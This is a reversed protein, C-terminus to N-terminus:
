LLDLERARAVAQTRRQVGLKGHINQVHKKVTRISIVLEDAIERNSLGEAVLQLVELERSSLPEVLPHPHQYAKESREEIAALLQKVYDVQIGRQAAHRLLRAMPAGENAFIRVYGEPRALSLAEELALLAHDSQNQHELALAELALMEILRGHRGGARAGDALPALLQLTAGADGQALRVRAVALLELERSLPSDDAGPTSEREAAWQEGAKLHGQALSLRVRYTDLITHLQAFLMRERGIQIADDLTAAASALDGQAHRIRALALYALALDSPNEWGQMQELSSKVLRQATELENWECLLDALGTDVGAVTGFRSGGGQDVAHLAQQYLKHAEQLQGQVKRLSALECLAVSQTWVNASERGIRAIEAYAQSARELDGKARYARGLVFSIIGRRNDGEVLLQDALHAQEQARAAQGSMDAGLARIAAINGLLEAVEPPQEHHPAASVSPAIIREATRLLPEVGDLQGAFTLAWAQLICLGPRQRALEVPLAEIWALLTVLEGRTLMLVAVREILQAAQDFDGAALAHSVAAASMGHSEFWGAARAHLSEIGHTGVSGELRARLLDAFLRHYRYWRRESDLPVLFLNAAELHELLSQSNPIPSQNNSIPYHIGSCLADCLPATLRDLISTQLLFSQIPEPQSALVEDTLYDLIYHHSGSFAQIFQSIRDASQGQMSLAAMQLGVIWGETRTELAAVERDALDLGMVRSLFDAAEDPRFRLDELRIEAMQGRARLRSLPLPPDARTAIVLHMRPPLREVLFAVGDHIPIADITHYDELVLIIQGTDGNEPLAAIDNILLTLISELPRPQPARLLDGAARGVGPAVTHLAAILYSWFRIPDNDGEDLSLWALRPQPDPVPSQAAWASLLTTKGYGAPASLLTMRHGLRLAEDLRQLLRPRSVGGPRPPPVYLKTALLPLEQGSGM